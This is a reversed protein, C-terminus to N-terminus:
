QGLTYVSLGYIVLDGTSGSAQIIVQTSTGWSDPFKLTTMLMGVPYNGSGVLTGNNYASVTIVTPSFGAAITASVLQFGATRSITGFCAYSVPRCQQGGIFAVDQGSAGLRYGAGAGSWGYPNVFFINGWDLQAYDSPVPSPTNVLPLSAFNVYEQASASGVM